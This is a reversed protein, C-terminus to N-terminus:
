LIPRVALAPFAPFSLSNSQGAFSCFKVKVGDLFVNPHFDGDLCGIILEVGIVQTHPMGEALSEFLPISGFIAAM